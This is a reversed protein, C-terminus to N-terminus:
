SPGVRGCSGSQRKRALFGIWFVLAGAFGRLTKGLALQSISIVGAANPRMEGYWSLTLSLGNEREWAERAASTGSESWSPSFSFLGVDPASQIKGTLRESFVASGTM